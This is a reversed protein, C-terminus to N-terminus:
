TTHLFPTLLTTLFYFGWGQDETAFPPNAGRQPAAAMDIAARFGGTAEGTPLPVVSPTLAPLAAFSRTLLGVGVRGRLSPLQAGANDADVRLPLSM